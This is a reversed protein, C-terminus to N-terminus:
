GSDTAGKKKKASQARAAQVPAGSPPHVRNGGAEKARYMAQDARRILSAPDAGDDPYVALGLSATVAGLPQTERGAFPHAAITERLGQAIQLGQERGVEPLLVVFEEGGYRAVIDSKRVRSRLIEGISRLAVDGMQHGHADNYKKFSDLDLVIVSLPTGQRSSRAIERNLAEQLYRYNYLGTLGDRTARDWLVENFRELEDNKRSLEELLARNEAEAKQLGAFARGARILYTARHGLLTGKIPKTTFDTAGAEYAKRVSEIDDLGTMMLIPALEGGPLTRIAACAAFGDMVPMLVDMLILDPRLREFAAVGERGDAAEEVALGARELAARTILRASDDDDVILVLPRAAQTGTQNTM